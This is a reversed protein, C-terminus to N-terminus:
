PQRQLGPRDKAEGVADILADVAPDSTGPLNKSGPLAAAHSHFIVELEDRTPTASFSLAMSVLDFDFDATRAQYQASDVVRISADVGIAKMNEVWPSDIRVFVEDM